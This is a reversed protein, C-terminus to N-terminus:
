RSSPAGSHHHHDAHDLKTAVQEKQGAQHGQTSKDAPTQTGAGPWRCLHSLLSYLEPHLLNLDEPWWAEDGILIVELEQDAILALVAKRSSGENIQLSLVWKHGLTVSHHNPQLSSM